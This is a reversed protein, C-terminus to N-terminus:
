FELGGGRAADALARVRGHYKYPGRDFAVKTVGADKARQAILEGVKVAADTKKLGKVSDRLGKDLTSASALTKGQVDDIVQVYINKGSRFVSLRPRPLSRTGSSSLSRRIRLAKFRRNRVKNNISM